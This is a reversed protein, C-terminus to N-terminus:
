WEVSFVLDDFDDDPFGDNCYYTKGNKFDECYLAAGNTGYYFTENGTNWANWIRLVGTKCEIEVEVKKPVTTERLFIKDKYSIGVITFTGKTSFFVGQEWEGSFKFFTITIKGKKFPLILNDAITIEKGNYILPQWNTTRFLEEFVISM